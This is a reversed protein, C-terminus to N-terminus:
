KCFNLFEYILGKVSRATDRREEAFSSLRRKFQKSNNRKLREHGEQRHLLGHLCFMLAPASIVPTPPSPSRAAGGGM